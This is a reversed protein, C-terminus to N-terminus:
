ILDYGLEATIREISILLPADSLPRNFLPLRPLAKSAREYLVVAPENGNM